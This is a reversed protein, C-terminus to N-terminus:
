VKKMKRRIARSAVYNYKKKIMGWQKRDVESVCKEEMVNIDFQSMDGYQGSNLADMFVKENTVFYKRYLRKIIRIILWGPGLFLFFLYSKLLNKSRFNYNVQQLAGGALHISLFFYVVLIIKM